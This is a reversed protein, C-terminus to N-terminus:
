LWHMFNIYIHLRATPAYGVQFGVFDLYAKELLGKNGVKKM